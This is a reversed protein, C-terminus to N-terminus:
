HAKPDGSLTPMEATGNFMEVPMSGLPNISLVVVDRMLDPTVGNEAHLRAMAQKQITGLDKKTIVPIPLELIVNLHRQKPAGEKEYIALVAVIFFYPNPNPSRRM